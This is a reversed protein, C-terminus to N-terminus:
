KACYHRNLGTNLKYVYSTSSDSYAKESTWVILSNRYAVSPVFGRRKRETATLFHYKMGLDIILLFTIESVHIDYKWGSVAEDTMIKTFSTTLGERFFRQCPESRVDLGIFFILLLHFDHLVIRFNRFFIDTSNLTRM